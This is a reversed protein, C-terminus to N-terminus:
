MRVGEDVAAPEAQPARARGMAETLALAASILGVHTFAQPFNGLAAGSAPDIEEGFLGLDNAFSLMRDFLALAEEIAGSRALFEAAWFSAIGFAAEGGPLGDSGPPYRYLLGDRELAARVARFTSRLRPSTAPDDYGRLGLLLLSADLGDGGLTDVYSGLERNFGESEIRRRLEDRHRRFREVPVKLCGREDLKLLRDLAVWCMAKSYTHHFRGSRKEWIGEDPETWVRCVTEGLRRLLRGKAADLAGGRVVFEFAAGVVEGFIDLQLQRSADNGVRVPRSGAYGELWPIEREALRVEGHVDYLVNLGVRSMRTAYLLWSFFAAGEEKFGLDLFATLTWSADRLWCYRYDWNRVGGIEEPLSTTPAAIVAGSPAYALLKLALLSRVVAEPHPGDYGCLGTWGHWWRLSRALREEARDGLPLFVAPQGCEAALSLFRRDGQRLTARGAVAGPHDAAVSLPLEGRLALVLERHEWTFGLARRDRLRGGGAGFNPRPDCGVEIEVEGALCELRRLIEHDPALEGRRESEAAVSMCDTLRLVGGATTFTTELVNSAGVYRRAVTFEGTPRVWFRGGRRADLLAAFVAPSDFRPVCLWDVSGTRGVLAATRCNGILAYDRIPTYAAAAPNTPM